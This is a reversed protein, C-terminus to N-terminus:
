ERLASCASGRAGLAESVAEGNRRAAEALTASSESEKATEAAHKEDAHDEAAHEDHSEGAHEDGAHEDGEHGHDHAAGPLADAWLPEGLVAGGRRAITAALQSGHPAIPFVARVGTARMTRVLAVVRAASPAAEPEAGPSITGVVTLGYRAAYAGAADHDTVIKRKSAPVSALCQTTQRDIQELEERLETAVTARASAGKPDLEDLAKTVTTIAARAAQPDMWWHREDGGLGKSADVQTADVESLAEQAWADNGRGPRVILSAQRLAKVQSPRLELEHVDATAPVVEAVRVGSGALEDILAQLQPATAAAVPRADDGGGDGCGALLAAAAAALAMPIRTSARLM